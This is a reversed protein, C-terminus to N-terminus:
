VWLTVNCFMMVDTEAKRARESRFRSFSIHEARFIKAYVIKIKNNNKNKKNKNRLTQFEAIKFSNNFMNITHQSNNRCEVSL